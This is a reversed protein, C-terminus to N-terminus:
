LVLFISRILKIEKGTKSNRKRRNSTAANLLAGRQRRPRRRVSWGAGIGGYQVREFVQSVKRSVVLVQLQLCQRSTGM